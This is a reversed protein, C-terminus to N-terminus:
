ADDETDAVTVTVQGDVLALEHSGIVVKRATGSDMEALPFVTHTTM